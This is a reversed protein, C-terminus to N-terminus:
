KDVVMNLCAKLESLESPTMPHGDISAQLLGKPTEALEVTHLGEAVNFRAIIQDGSSM